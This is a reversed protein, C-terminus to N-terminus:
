EIYFLLAAQRKSISKTPSKYPSIHTIRKRATNSYDIAFCQQQSLDTVNESVNNYARQSVLSRPPPPLSSSARFHFDNVMPLKISSNASNQSMESALNSRGSLDIAEDFTSFGDLTNSPIQTCDQISQLQTSTKCADAPPNLHSYKRKMTKLAEPQGRQFKDHQYYNGNKRFGYFHLQRIFSDFNKSRFKTGILKELQSREVEIKTGDETWEIGSDPKNVLDWLKEPFLQRKTPRRKVNM